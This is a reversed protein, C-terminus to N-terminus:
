GPGPRDWRIQCTQASLSSIWVTNAMPWLLAIPITPWNFSQPWQMSTYLRVQHIALMTSSYILRDSTRSIFDIDFNSHVAFLVISTTVRSPASPHSFIDPIPIRLMDAVCFHASIQFSSPVNLFPWISHQSPTIVICGFDLLSSHSCDSRLSRCPSQQRVILQWRSHEYRLSHHKATIMSGGYLVPVLSISYLFSNFPLGFQRSFFSPDFTAQESSFNFSDSCMGHFRTIGVDEWPSCRGSRDVWNHPHFGEQYLVNM